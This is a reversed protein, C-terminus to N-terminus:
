LCPGTMSGAARSMEEPTGCFIIRGGEDGAGPGLEIVYDASRIVDTNHEILYVTNGDKVM